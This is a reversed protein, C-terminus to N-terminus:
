SEGTINFTLHFRGWFSAGFGDFAVGMEDNQDVREREEFVEESFLVKEFLFGWFSGVLSLALSKTHHM